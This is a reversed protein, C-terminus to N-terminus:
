LAKGWTYFKCCGISFCQFKNVKIVKLFMLDVQISCRLYAEVKERELVPWLQIESHCSQSLTSESPAQRSALDNFHITPVAPISGAVGAIDVCHEGVSSRAWFETNLVILFHSRREHM